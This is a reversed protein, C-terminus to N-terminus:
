TMYDSQEHELMSRLFANSVITLLRRTLYLNNRAIATSVCIYALWCQLPCISRLDCRAACRKSHRVIARGM